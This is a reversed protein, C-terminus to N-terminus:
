GTYFVHGFNYGYKYPEKFIDMLRNVSVPTVHVFWCVFPTMVVTGRGCKCRLGYTFYPGDGLVVFVKTPVLIIDIFFMIM